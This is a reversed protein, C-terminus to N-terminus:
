GHPATYILEFTFNLGEAVSIVNCNSPWMHNFTVRNPCCLSLVNGDHCVTGHYLMPHPQSEAYSLHESSPSPKRVPSPSSQFTLDTSEFTQGM